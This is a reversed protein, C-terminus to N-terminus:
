AVEETQSIDFVTGMIFGLPAAKSKAEEDTETATRKSSPCLIMLGHEGKRVSRGQKKWQAFGGVITSNANQLMILHTNYASLSRGEVSVPNIRGALEARQAESMGAIQKCLVRFRERRAVAKAKDEATPQYM